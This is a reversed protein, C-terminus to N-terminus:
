QSAACAGTMTLCGHAPVRYFREFRSGAHELLDKDGVPTLDGAPDGGGGPAHADGRHSDIGVGVRAGAVDAEAVFRKV